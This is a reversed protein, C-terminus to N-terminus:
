GKDISSEDLVDFGVQGIVFATRASICQDTVEPGFIVMPLEYQLCTHLKCESSM